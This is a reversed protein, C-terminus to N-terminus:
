LIEFPGPETNGKLNAQRAASFPLMPRPLPFQTAALLDAAFLVLMGCTANASSAHMDILGPAGTTATV